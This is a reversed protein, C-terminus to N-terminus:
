TVSRNHARTHISPSSFTSSFLAEKTPTATALFPSPPTRQADVLWISIEGSQSGTAWLRVGPQGVPSPSVPVATVCKVVQQHAPFCRLKRATGHHPHPPAGGEGGEAANPPSLDWTVFSPGSPQVSPAHMPLPPAPCPPPPPPRLGPSTALAKSLPHFPLPPRGLPLTVAGGGHLVLNQPAPNGVGLGAVHHVSVGGGSKM